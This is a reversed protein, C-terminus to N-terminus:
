ENTCYYIQTVVFRSCWGAGLLALWCFENTDVTEVTSSAAHPCQCARLVAGPEM